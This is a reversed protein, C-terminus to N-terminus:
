VEKFGVFRQDHSFNGDRKMDFFDQIANGRKEFDEVCQFPPYKHEQTPQTEKWTAM